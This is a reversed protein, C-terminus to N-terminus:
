MGAKAERRLSETFREKDKELHAAEQYIRFRQTKKDYVTPLEWFVEFNIGHEKWTPTDRVVNETIDLFFGSCLV